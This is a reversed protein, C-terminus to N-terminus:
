YRMREFYFFISNYISFIIFVTIVTHINLAIHNQELKLTQMAVSKLKTCDNGVYHCTLTLLGENAASTWIDTTLSCYLITELEESMLKKVREYEEPLM